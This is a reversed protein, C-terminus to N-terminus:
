DCTGRRLLGMSTGGRGISISGFTAISEPHPAISRGIEQIPTMSGRSRASSGARPMQEACYTGDIVPNCAEATASVPLALLLAATIPAVRRAARCGTANGIMTREWADLRM